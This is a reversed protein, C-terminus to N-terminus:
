KSREAAPGKAANDNALAVGHFAVPYDATNPSMIALVDGKGFGRAHLGAAARRTRDALERYSYTTGSGIDIIAPKDGLRAAHRLVEPTLAADPIVVDPFPSKFIM